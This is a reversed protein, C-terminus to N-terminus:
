QAKFTPTATTSSGRNSHPMVVAAGVLNMPLASRLLSRPGASRRGATETEALNRRAFVKRSRSKPRIANAGEFDANVPSVASLIYIYIYHVSPGYERFTAGRKGGNAPREGNATIRTSGHKATRARRDGPIRKAFTREQRASSGFRGM